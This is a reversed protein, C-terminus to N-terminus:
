EKAKSAPADDAVAKKVIDIVTKIEDIRTGGFPMYSTVDVTAEINPSKLKTFIGNLRIETKNLALKELNKYFKNITKKSNIMRYTTETYKILVKKDGQKEWKSLYPVFHYEIKNNKIKIVHGEVSKEEGELKTRECGIITLFILFMFISVIITHRNEFFIKSYPNLRLLTCYNINKM